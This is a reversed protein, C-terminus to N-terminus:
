IVYKKLISTGEVQMYLNIRNRFLKDFIEIQKNIQPFVIEIM